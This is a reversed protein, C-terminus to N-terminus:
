RQNLASGLQVHVVSPEAMVLGMLGPNFRFSQYVRQSFTVDCSFGALYIPLTWMVDCTASRRGCMYEESEESWLQVALQSTVGCLEIRAVAAADAEGAGGKTPTAGGGM